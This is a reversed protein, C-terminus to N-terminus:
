EMLSAIEDLGLRKACQLPSEMADAITLNPDAGNKLLVSVIGPYQLGVAYYLATYGKEDRVDALATGSGFAPGDLLARLAVEDNELARVIVEPPRAAVRDPRVARSINDNGGSKEAEKGNVGLKHQLLLTCERANRSERALDFVTEKEMRAELSTRMEVAEVPIRRLLEAVCAVRGNVLAAQLATRGVGDRSKTDANQDLASKVGLLDGRAAARILRQSLALNVFFGRVMGRDAPNSFHKGGLDADFVELLPGIEGTERFETSLLRLRQIETKVKADVWQVDRGLTNMAAVVCEFYCWGRDMYQVGSEVGAPVEDIFIVRSTLFIRGMLDGSLATRFKQKEEETRDDRGSQHHVQPLSLYDFFVVDEKDLMVQERMADLKARLTEVQIGCPDPQFRALWPHTVAFSRSARQLSGFANAPLDQCRPMREGDRLNDLLWYAKVWAVGPYEDDATLPAAPPREHDAASSPPDKESEAGPAQAAIRAQAAPTSAPTSSSASAGAVKTKAKPPVPSASSRHSVAAAKSLLGGAANKPAM